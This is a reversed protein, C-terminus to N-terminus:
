VAVVTPLRTVQGLLTRNFGAGLQWAGESGKGGTTPGAAEQDGKVAPLQLFIPCPAPCIDAVKCSYLSDTHKTMM